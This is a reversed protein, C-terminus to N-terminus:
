DLTAAYHVFSKGARATLPFELARAVRYPNAMATVDCESFLLPRKDGPAPLAAETAATQQRNLVLTTGPSPCLTPLTASGVGQRM